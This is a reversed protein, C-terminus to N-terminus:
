GRPALADLEAQLRPSPPASVMAHVLDVLQTVFLQPARSGFLAAGSSAAGTVETERDAMVAVAAAVAVRIRDARLQEPVAEMHDVMLRTCLYLSGMAPREAQLLAPESRIVETLFRGYWGPREILVAEGLPRVFM